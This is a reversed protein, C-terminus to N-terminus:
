INKIDQDRSLRPAMLNPIFFYREGVYRGCQDLINLVIRRIFQALKVDPVLGERLKVLDKRYIIIVNWLIDKLKIRRVNISNKQFGRAEDFGRQLKEFLKYNHSHRVVAQNCYAKAYGAELINKAWLQDECFDVDEYPILKWVSRRICCNNSSFFVKDENSIGKSSSFILKPLAAHHEFHDLLDSRTFPDADKTALHRGYAGAIRDDAEVSEVLTKLWLENEPIADQTIIALYPSETKSIALNRTKGHGFDRPSIKIINIGRSGIYELTGDSSGSDVVLVDYKWPTHQRTLLDVLVPITEMGNKTPIIITCHANM